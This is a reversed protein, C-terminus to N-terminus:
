AESDEEEQVEELSPRDWSCVGQTDQEDRTELVSRVREALPSEVTDRDERLSDLDDKDAGDWGFEEQEAEFSPGATSPAAEEQETFLVFETVGDLAAAM